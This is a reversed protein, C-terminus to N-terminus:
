KPDGLMRNLDSQVRRLGAAAHCLGMIVMGLIVGVFLALITWIM